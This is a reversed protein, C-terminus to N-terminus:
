IPNHLSHVVIQTSRSPPKSCRWGGWVVESSQMKPAPQLPAMPKKPLPLPAITGLRVGIGFLISAAHGAQGGARRRRKHGGGGPLRRAGGHRAL